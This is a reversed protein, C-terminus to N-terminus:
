TVAKETKEVTVVACWPDICDDGGLLEVEVVKARKSAFPVTDGIVPVRSVRITEPPSWSKDDEARRNGGRGYKDGKTGCEILRVRFPFPPTDNVEVKPKPLIGRHQLERLLYEAAYGAFVMLFINILPFDM